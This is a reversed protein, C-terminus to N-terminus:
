PIRIEVGTDLLNGNGGGPSALKQKEAYLRSLEKKAAALLGAVRQAEARLDGIGETMKGISDKDGAGALTGICLLATQTARANKLFQLERQLASINNEVVEIRMAVLEIDPIIPFYGTPDAFKVPNNSAYRYSNFDGTAVGMPEESLFRGQDNAYYRARHHSLRIEEEFERGTFRYRSTASPDSQSLVNGYSDYVIHNVVAGSNDILDRVTGLRDTLMWFVNGAAGEQALIQDVAPGHLYRETQTPSAGAGAGDVDVFDLLVDDRDYVFHTTKEGGLGAGDADVTKSIRRNLADYTFEVIQTAGQGVGSLDDIEVLRGRQDWNFERVKGTAVETRRILSGKGDYVYDYTGDSQLRNGPGTVYGTGHLSSAIRNGNEDYQYTEDPNGPDAHTAGALQDTADYNYDTPGDIDTVKTIRSAPDYEIQFQNLITNAANQHNINTVRNLEDYGFTSRAVSNTGALDSFRDISAFQSVENYGFDVRKDTVGVGSQTIRTTRNLVDYAYANTGAATGNIADAVALINGAGDYVYSLAVRPANPTGQNDVTKVRNRNDYTFALSSFQDLISTLNGVKDYDSFIINGDNVWQEAILRDLDDYEYSMVESNRDTMEVLNNVADYAYKTVKGLPDIEQVLRDRGDYVFVTRNGVPDILERLNNNADYGFRTVSEDPATTATLRSRLDYDYHTSHNLPDTVSIVNGGQDYVFTTIGTLADTTKVLRNLVDYENTTVNNRADRTTLLNGALDYTFRTEHGLADRLVKLKDLADYVLETRNNNEDVIATINGAIDYELRRIGQDTTGKAMTITTLRGFLDYDYDTIRGLADTVLDVLGTSTYTLQAVVDDTGGVAGVVRTIKTTNGNTPNVDFLTMRGLEDTISTLQNFTTEYTFVRGNGTARPDGTPDLSTNPIDISASSRFEYAMPTGQGRAGKIALLYTGAEGAQIEVNQDVLSGTGSFL